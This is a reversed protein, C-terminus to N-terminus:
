KLSYIMKRKTGETKLLGQKKMYRILTSIAPKNTKRHSSVYNYIQNINAQNNNLFKLVFDRNSKKSSKTKKPKKQDDEQIGLKRMLTNIEYIELLLEKKKNSLVTQIELKTNSQM